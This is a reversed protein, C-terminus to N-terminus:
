LMVARVHHSTGGPMHDEGPEGSPIPTNHDHRLQPLQASHRTTPPSLGGISSHRRSPQGPTSGHPGGTIVVVAHGLAEEGGHLALRGRVAPHSVTLQIYGHELTTTRPFPSQGHRNQWAPKTLGLCPWPGYPLLWLSRSSFTAGSPQRQRHHARSRRPHIGLQTVSSGSTMMATM